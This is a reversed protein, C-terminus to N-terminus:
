FTQAGCAHSHLLPMVVYGDKYPLLLCKRSLQSAKAVKFPGTPQSVTFVFDSSMPYNYFIDMETFAKYVVYIGDVSQIINHVVCIDGDLSFINDGTSVKMLWQETQLERYQAVVELGDTVPGVYHQMKLGKCPLKITSIREAESLRRIIQALPFTPKRVFRKLKCLFNEFPFASISDLCGYREADASLHVLAHVNYVLATQGYIEGFHSVFTTLLTNAYNSYLPCLQPSLLICIGASFLM